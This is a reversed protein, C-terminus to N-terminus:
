MDAIYQRELRPCVMAVTPEYVQYLEHDAFVVGIARIVPRLIGMFVGDRDLCCKHAVLTLENNNLLGTPFIYITSGFKIKAIPLTSQTATIDFGVFEASPHGAVHIIRNSDIFVYHITQEVVFIM